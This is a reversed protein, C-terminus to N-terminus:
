AKKDKKKLKSVVRLLLEREGMLILLASYIILGILVLVSLAFVKHFITQDFYYIESRSFYEFVALALAAIAIKLIRFNFFYSWDLDLYKKLFYVQIGCNMTM